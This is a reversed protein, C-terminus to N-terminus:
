KKGLKELLKEKLYAFAETRGDLLLMLGNPVVLCLVGKLLLDGLAGLAALKGVTQVIGFSVAVM